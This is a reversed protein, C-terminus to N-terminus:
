GFGRGTSDKKVVQISRFAFNPSCAKLTTETFGWETTLEAKIHIMLISFLSEQTIRDVKDGGRCSIGYLNCGSSGFQYLTRSSVGALVVLLKHFGPRIFPYRLSERLSRPCGHM